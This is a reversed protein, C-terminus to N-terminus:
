RLTLVLSLSTDNMTHRFAVSPADNNHTIYLNPRWAAEIFEWWHREEGTRDCAFM